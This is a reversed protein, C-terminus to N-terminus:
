ARLVTGSEQWVGLLPPTPVHTGQCIAIKNGSFSWKLTSLTIRCNNYLQILFLIIQQIISILSPTIGCVRESPDAYNDMVYSIKSISFSIKLSQFLLTHASIANRLKAHDAHSYLLGNFTLDQCDFLYM